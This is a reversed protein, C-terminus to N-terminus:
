TTTEEIEEDVERIAAELVKNIALVLQQHEKVATSLTELYSEPVDPAPPGTGLHGQDTRM